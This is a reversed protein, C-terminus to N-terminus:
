GPILDLEVDGHAYLVTGTDTFVSGHECGAPALQYDLPRLLVEDLFLDGELMLCEEDHGHGHRPVSVGPATRYLMAAESGSRWMLRRVIGPAFDLWEATAARQTAPREGDHPVRPSERLMVFAGEASALPLAPAGAPAVHFDEAELREPGLTVSGRLVLWERQLPPEPGAWLAGPALEVLRVRGPEGPRLNVSRARYLTRLTVGAAPQQAPADAHRTTFLQRSANASHEIRAFLRRRLATAEPRPATGDASRAERAERADRADRPDRAARGGPADLADLPDLAAFAPILTAMEDALLDPAPLPKM